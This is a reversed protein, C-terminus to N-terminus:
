RPPHVDILRNFDADDPVADRSAGWISAVDSLIPLSGRDRVLTDALAVDKRMLRMTFGSDFSETLIWRPYNIDTAGNRSAGASLVSILGEPALGLHKGLEVIEATIALNAAGLLNNLLKAAHGNGPAGMHVIKAGIRSLIDRARELHEEKGGVMISLTGARAGFFGGSVPADLLHVGKGALRAELERTVIPDSTTTDLILLEHGIEDASLDGITSRVDAATPLSLIVIRSARFVDLATEHTEIGAKAARDRAEEFIDTGVVRLGTEALREAMALGMRGLGVVGVDANM